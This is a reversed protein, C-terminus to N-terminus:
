TRLVLYKGISTIRDDTGVPVATFPFRTYKIIRIDNYFYDFM